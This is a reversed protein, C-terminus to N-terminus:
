HTGHIMTWLLCYVTYYLISNNTITLYITGVVIDLVIIILIFLWHRTCTYSALPLLLNFTPRYLLYIILEHVADNNNKVRLVKVTYNWNDNTMWNIM